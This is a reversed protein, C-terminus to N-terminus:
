GAQRFMLVIETRRRKVREDAISDGVSFFCRTSCCKSGLNAGKYLVNVVQRLGTLSVVRAM